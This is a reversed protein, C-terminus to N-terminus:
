TPSFFFNFSVVAAAVSNPSLSQREENCVDDMRAAPRKTGNFNLAPFFDARRMEPSHSSVRNDQVWNREEGRECVRDMEDSDKKKIEACAAQM